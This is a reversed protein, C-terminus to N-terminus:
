NLTLILKQAKLELKGLSILNTTLEVYYWIRLMTRLWTLKQALNEYNKHEEKTTSLNKSPSFKNSSAKTHM